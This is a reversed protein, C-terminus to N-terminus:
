AAKQYSSKERAIFEDFSCHGVVKAVKNLEAEIAALYSMMKEYNENTM